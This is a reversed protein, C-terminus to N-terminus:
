PASIKQPDLPDDGKDFSRSPGVSEEEEGIQALEEREKEVLIDIEKETLGFVNLDPLGM